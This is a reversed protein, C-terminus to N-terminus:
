LKSSQNYAGKNLAMMVEFPQQVFPQVKLVIQIFSMRLPKHKTSNMKLSLELYQNSKTEILSWQFLTPLSKRQLILDVEGRCTCGNSPAPRSDHLSSGNDLFTQGKGQSTSQPDDRAIQQRGPRKCIQNQPWLKSVEPNSHLFILCFIFLQYRPPSQKLNPFFGPM